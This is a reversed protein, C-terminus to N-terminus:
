PVNKDFSSYPSHSTFELTSDFLLIFITTQFLQFLQLTTFIRIRNLCRYLYDKDSTVKLNNEHLFNTKTSVWFLQLIM